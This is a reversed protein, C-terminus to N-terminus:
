FFSGIGKVLDLGKDIAASGLKNIAAQAFSPFDHPNNVVGQVMAGDVPLINMFVDGVSFNVQYTLRDSAGSNLSLADINVPWCETYQIIALEQRIVSLLYINISKKYDIPRGFGGGMTAASSASFPKLVQNHWAQLYSLAVNNCDAYIGLRLNDVSYKDAYHRDRGERFISRTGFQRFPMNAEEVYYWPLEVAGQVAAVSGGFVSGGITSVIQGPIGPLGATLSGVAANGLGALLGSSANSIPSSSGIVPLQAYWCYSMMPDARAQAGLLAHGLPVGGSGSAPSDVGIIQGPNFISNGGLGQIAAGFIDQPASTVKGLAGQWDGNLADMAAGVASNIGQNLVNSVTGSVRNNIENKANQIVGNVASQVGRVQGDVQSKVQQKANGIIDNLFSM